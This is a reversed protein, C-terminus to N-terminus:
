DMGLIIYCDVMDLEILDLLIKRHFISVVCGKYVKRAVISEGMSTSISFPDFIRKRGFGFHVDVYLMVYSLTSSPDLFYYDNHSFLQLM